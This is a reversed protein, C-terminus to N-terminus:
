GNKRLEKMLDMYFKLNHLSALRMALPEKMAFLHSLYARSYNQCLECDCNSDTKSFDEKYKENNINIVDYFKSNIQDNAM